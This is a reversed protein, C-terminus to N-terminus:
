SVEGPKIIKQGHETLLRLKAPTLNTARATQYTVREKRTDDLSQLGEPDFKTWPNQVVYTYLNPGDVFGNVKILEQRRDLSM